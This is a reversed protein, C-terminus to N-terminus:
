HTPPSRHRPHHSPPIRHEPPARIQVRRRHPAVEPSRKADQRPCPITTPHRRRSHAESLLEIGVSQEPAAAPARCRRLDDSGTSSAAPCPTLSAPGCSPVHGRRRSM